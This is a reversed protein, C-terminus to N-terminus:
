DYVYQVFYHAGAPASKQMTIKLFYTGTWEPTKEIVAVAGPDKDRALLKGKEDYLAADLDTCDECGAVILRYAVGSSFTFRLVVTEGPKLVGDASFDSVRFGSQKALGTAYLVRTMAGELGARASGGLLVLLTLLHLLPRRM